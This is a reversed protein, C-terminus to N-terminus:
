LVQAEPGVQMDQQDGCFQFTCHSYTSPPLELAPHTKRSVGEGAPQM